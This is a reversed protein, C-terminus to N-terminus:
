IKSLIQVSHHLLSDLELRLKEPAGNLEMQTHQVLEVIFDIWRYFPGNLNFGVVQLKVIDLM